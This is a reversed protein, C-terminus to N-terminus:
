KRSTKSSIVIDPKTSEVIAFLENQEKEPVKFKDLTKKFDAVMADWEKETINMDKHVEKMTRGNYKEPGGTVQCVLETVRHKIGAIPVRDRPEKIAPNANISDNAAVREIFDDVVTAIGHVGGLREYLSKEEQEQAKCATINVLLMIVLCFISSVRLAVHKQHM